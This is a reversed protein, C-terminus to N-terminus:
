FEEDGERESWEEETCERSRRGKERRTIWLRERAQKGTDRIEREWERKKCTYGGRERGVERVVRVVEGEEKGGREVRRGTEGVRWERGEKRNETRWEKCGEEEGDTWKHSM